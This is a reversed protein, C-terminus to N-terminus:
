LNVVYYDYYYAQLIFNIPNLCLETRRVTQGGCLSM